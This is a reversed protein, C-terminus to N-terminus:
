VLDVTYIDSAVFSSDQELSLMVRVMGPADAPRSIHLQSCFSHTLEYAVGERALPADIKSPAARDVRIPHWGIDNAM